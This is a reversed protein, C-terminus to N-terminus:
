GFWEGRTVAVTSHSRRLSAFDIAGPAVGV